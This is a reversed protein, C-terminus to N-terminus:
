KKPPPNKHNPPNINDRTPPQIIWGYPRRRVCDFYRSMCVFARMGPAARALLEALQSINFAVGGGEVDGDEDAEQQQQRSSSSPSCAADGAGTAARHLLRPNQGQKSPPQPPSQSQSQSLHNVM